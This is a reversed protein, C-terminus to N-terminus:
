RISDFSQLMDIDNTRIMHLNSGEVVDRHYIRCPLKGGVSNLGACLPQKSRCVSRILPKVDNNSTTSIAAVDGLASRSPLPPDWCIVCARLLLDDVWCTSSISEKTAECDPQNSCLIDDLSSNPATNACAEADLYYADWDHSLVLIAVLGPVPDIHCFTKFFERIM